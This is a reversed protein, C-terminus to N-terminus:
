SDNLAIAVLLMVGIFVGVAILIRTGATLNKGKGQQVESYPITIANGDYEEVLIFESDRVERIYGKLKRQDKLKVELRAQEGVGLKAIQARVKLASKSEESPGALAIVPWFFAHALLLVAFQVIQKM